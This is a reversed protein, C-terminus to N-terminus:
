TKTNRPLVTRYQQIRLKRQPVKSLLTYASQSFPKIHYLM